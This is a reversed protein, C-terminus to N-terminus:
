NWTNTAIGNGSLKSGKKPVTKNVKTHDTVSSVDRVGKLDDKRVPADAYSHVEAVTSRKKKNSRAPKKAPVAEKKEEAKNEVAKEEKAPSDEKKVEAEKAVEKKAEIAEEISPKDEKKNDFSMDESM